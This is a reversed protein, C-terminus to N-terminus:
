FSFSLPNKNGSFFCKNISYIKGPFCDIRKKLDDDTSLLERVFFSNILVAIFILVNTEM